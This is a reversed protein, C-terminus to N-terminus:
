LYGVGISKMISNLESLGAKGEGIVIWWGFSTSISLSTAAQWFRFRLKGLAFAFQLRRRIGGQVRMAVVPAAPGVQGVPVRYCGDNVRLRPKLTLRTAKIWSV